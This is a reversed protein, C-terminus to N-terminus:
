NFCNNLFFNYANNFFIDNVLNERYGNKLFLEYLNSMSEIGLIDHPMEAGDFDSGLAVTKEGGLSLFHDVHKIIDFMNPSSKDSLFTKCFNIGVIGNRAKIIEFQENTLNRKHNCIKRSNSHSAAFPKTSNECVDYFLKDSAHSVDIIIGLNEMSKVVNKGFQTLGGPNTVGCGDGIENAGNWTLTMMKVGKKNLQELKELEGGLVAGGEVTLMAKQAIKENQIDQVTKCLKLNGNRVIESDLKGKAKLFLEFAAKGRYEDPIFVAFCQIWNSFKNTKCLSIHFKKCELTENEELAKFLTDCHLDFLKM